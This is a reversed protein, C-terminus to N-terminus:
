IHPTKLRQTAALHLLLLRYQKPLRNSEGLWCNLLLNRMGSKDDALYDLARTCLPSCYWGWTVYSERERDREGEM